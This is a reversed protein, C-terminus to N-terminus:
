GGRNAAAPPSARGRADAPGLRPGAGAATIATVLSVLAPAIEELLLVRDVCGTEIASRPMAFHASTAEDQAIVIGECTKVTQVGDTADRDWGTLVVAIMGGGFTEAASAFLQNASSLVHRIKRGDTLALCQDGRVTFHLDPPALYVTGPQMAETHEAIKVMLSTHRSLVKALLNPQSTTRHQVVAIPVPFDAPLASLLQEIAKVGGASAAIVV